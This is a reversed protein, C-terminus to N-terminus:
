PTTGGETPPPAIPSALPVTGSSVPAMIRFALPAAEEGGFGSEPLVISIAYSPPAIPNNPSYAPGFAAFVASDEKGSVQATGTKGALPFAARNALWASNATGAGNNIVGVLGQWIKEYAGPVFEVKAAAEPEIKRVVEYNDPDAPNRGIDKPRTVAMVIQPVYRTGGNAFTAYANALQLPTVLVDGQGVATNLNDGAYWSGNPFAKPSKEHREKRNQPTPLWGASEGPLAVGSVSGIGFDAAVDQIATTGFRGRQQWLQDGIWYYYTDSSVTISRAVDVTGLRVRGANYFTCRGGKCNRVTYSGRDNFHENAPTLFGSDLAATASILKFTSGPAYAGQLAWNFLPQGQKKDNLKAWLASSIGNVLDAPEYSPNSAMALIQGNRPDVIVVSGQPANRQAGSKTNAGKARVEELKQALQQEAFAQLDIDITLWIDDGQRPKSEKVTTVYDGRADVQITKDSPTGRLDDEYTREVGAKGIEDGGQYPKVVVDSDQARLAKHEERKAALEKENIQLVYGLLHAAVAGYPYTRVARRRVVVGPFLEHREALYVELAPSNVGSVLPVLELPGYRRDDYKASIAASKTPIGFRTLTVALRDFVEDREKASLDSMDQREIGIVRTIENDVLVRGKRDLIRGRSGEERVTKLNIRTARVHETKDIIQLYWLRVFLSAFLSICVIGVMSLRALSVPRESM